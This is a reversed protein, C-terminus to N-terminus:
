APSGAPMESIMSHTASSICHALDSELMDRWERSFRGLLESLERRRLAVYARLATSGMLLRSQQAGISMEKGEGRELLHELMPITVFGDHIEGLLDQMMRLRTIVDAIDGPLLDEFFELTYRLRKVAIRLRHLMLPSGGGDRVHEDYALVAALEQHMLRPLVHRLRHPFANGLETTPLRAHKGYGEFFDEMSEVFRTYKPGDLYLIMEERLKERHDTLAEVLPVLGSRQQPSLREMDSRTREVFVDLDRVRGLARGTRRLGRQLKRMVKPDFSEGLISIVARMRRVSVRMDHLHEINAGTRTGEENALMKGFQQELLRAVADAISDGLTLPPLREARTPQRGHAVRPKGKLPDTGSEKSNLFKLARELKSTSEPVLDFDDALDRAIREVDEPTGRPAKEIEVEFFSMRASKSVLNVKDLSLEAVKRKGILLPVLDRDQSLELLTKLPMRKAADLVIDRAQGEPWRKPDSGKGGPLTHEERYLVGGRTKGLSKVTVETHGSGSRLRCAYGAAFLRRDETDLYTDRTRIPIPDGLKYAGVRKLDHLRSFTRRDRVAFKAEIEM